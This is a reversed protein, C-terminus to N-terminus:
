KNSMSTNSNDSTNSENTDTSDTEVRDISKYNSTDLKKKGTKLYNVTEIHKYIYFIIILYNIIYKFTYDNFSDLTLFSTIVYYILFTIGWSAYKNYGGDFRLDVFLVICYYMVIMRFIGMTVNAFVNILLSLLYGIHWDNCNIINKRVLTMLFAAIQIALLPSFSTNINGVMYLTAGVQMESYFRNLKKKNEETINENYPMGRMTTTKTKHTETALDALFLVIFCTLINFLISFNYYYLLTCIVSRMAFIISHLRFEPYIMPKNNIRNKPIHFKLSSVSLAGHLLIYFPTYPDEQLFSDHYVILLYFRYFFHLLAFGGLLKHILSRDEKTHLKFINETKITM